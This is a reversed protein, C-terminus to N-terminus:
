HNALPFYDFRFHYDIAVPRDVHSCVVTRARKGDLSLQQIFQVQAIVLNINYNINVEQESTGTSLLVYFLLMIAYLTLEIPPCEIVHSM